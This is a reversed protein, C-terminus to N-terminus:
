PKVERLVGASIDFRDVKGGALRTLPSRFQANQFAGSKELTEIVQAADPAYGYIRVDANQVQMQYLWTDDPLIRSLDAMAAAMPKQSLREGLFDIRRQTESLDRRLAEIELAGKRERSVEATLLSLVAERRSVAQEAVLWGLALILACIGTTIAGARYTAADSRPHPLLNLPEVLDDQAVRVAAPVLGCRKLVSVAQDLYAREVVALRVRLRGSEEGLLQWDFYSEAQTFPTQRPLEFPLLKHLQRRASVPIEIDRVLVDRRPLILIAHGQRASKEQRLAMAITDPDAAGDYMQKEVGAKRLVISLRDGDLSLDLAARRQRWRRPLMGALEARWWRFGTEVLELSRPLLTRLEALSMTM